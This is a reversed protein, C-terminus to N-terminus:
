VCLKVTKGVVNLLWPLKEKSDLPMNKALWKVEDELSPFAGEDGSAVPPTSQPHPKPLTHSPLRVRAPNHPSKMPNHPSPLSAHPAQPCLYCANMYNLVTSIFIIQVANVMKYLVM